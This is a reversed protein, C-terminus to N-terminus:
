YNLCEKPNGKKPIPPAKFLKYVFPYPQLEITNTQLVLHLTVSWLKGDGSRGKERKEKAKPGLGPAVLLILIESSPDSLLRRM